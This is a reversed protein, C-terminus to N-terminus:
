RARKGVRRRWYGPRRKMHALAVILVDRERVTYIVLYPFDHMPVRRVDDAIKAVRPWRSPAEAIAGLAREYADYFDDGLGFRRDEYWAAAEALEARVAALQRVRTV